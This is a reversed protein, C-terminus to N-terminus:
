GRDAEPAPGTDNRDGPCLYRQLLLTLMDPDIPKSIFDDMGASLCRRRDEDLAHATMAIIPVHDGGAELSRIRAVAEFGDMEPMQIDMLICDFDQRKKWEAVAERGNTVARVSLGLRGLLAEALTINIFEDDVLLISKGKFCHSAQTRKEKEYIADPQTKDEIVSSEGAISKKERMAFNEEGMAFPLSFYFCTGRGKESELHIDGGMLRIIKRSIALGLGTGGYRRSLTTDVQTFANFITEQMEPEIGIGTDCVEFLVRVLNKERQMVLLSIQMAIRGKNTFKVANGILNLLVQALKDGDGILQDPIDADIQVDLVLGKKRALVELHLIIEEVLDRLCFPGQQLEMRGAEVKSFDLMDNILSLLRLGSRHILRLYKYQGPSVKEQLLLTSLGIIGNMPTRIEHSMNALFHTKALSAAEANKKAEQLELEVMKQRSIDQVVWVVGFSLDDQNIAKGSLTCPILTGDKKRLTYEIQDLDSFALRRAYTHLFHIYSKKDAFFMGPKGGLIEETSYGFVEGVRENVNTIRGNRILLIGILSASFITELERRTERRATEALVSQRRGRDIEETLQRETQSHLTIRIFVECAIIALCSLLVMILWPPSVPQLVVLEWGKQLVAERSVLMRQNNLRVTNNVLVFPLPTLPHTSFQRSALIKQRKSATLPCATHYLFEERNSAFVVGDPSLLFTTYQNSPVRLFADVAKLDIKIAVVGIVKRGNPKMVPASIYIGRKKTTVGVAAYQVREGQMARSFYPRFAYNKGTLTAHDPGYPSCGIVTGRSDLLYVISASLVDRATVLIQLLRDNDPTSRGLCGNIIPQKKALTEAGNGFRGVIFNNVQFALHDTIIKQRGRAVQQVLQDSGMCIFFVAVLTLLVILVINWMVHRDQLGHDNRSSHQIPDPMSYLGLSLLLICIVM